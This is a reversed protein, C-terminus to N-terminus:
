NPFFFRFYTEFNFGHLFIHLFIEVKVNKRTLKSIPNMKSFVNEFEDGIDADSDLCYM